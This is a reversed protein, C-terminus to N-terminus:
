GNTKAESSVQDNGDSVKTWGQNMKIACVRERGRRDTALFRTEGIATIKLQLCTSFSEIIDGVKYLAKFSEPTHNIRNNRRNKVLFRKQIPASKM